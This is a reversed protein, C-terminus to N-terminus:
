QKVSEKPQAISQKLEIVLQELRANKKSLEILYLTLEEIKKMQLTQMEGLDLGDKNIETASPIEPLRKNAKIYGEIDALSRLQYGEDFVYDAWPNAQTVKVKRAGLVGEVALKYPGPATTGIGIAGNFFASTGNVNDLFNSTGNVQLKYTGNTGNIGISGALVSNSVSASGNVNLKSGNDVSTGIMTNGNLYNRDAAGAQYIGWKNTIRSQVDSNTTVDSLYLGYFNTITGTFAPSGYSQLPFGGYFSALDSISGTNSVIYNTRFNSVFGTVSGTNSKYITSGVSNMGPYTSLITSGTGNLGFASGINENLYQNTQNAFTGAISTTFYHGIISNNSAFNSTLTFNASGNLLLNSYGDNTAGNIYIKGSNERMMSNTISNSGAFKPIYDITGSGSITQSYGSVYVLLCVSVFLLYQIKKM